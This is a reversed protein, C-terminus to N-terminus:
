DPRDLRWVPGDAGPHVYLSPLEDLLETLNVLSIAHQRPIPVEVGRRVYGGSSRVLAPVTVVFAGREAKPWGADRQKKYDGSGLTRAVRGDADGVFEDRREDLWARTREPSGGAAPVAVVAIVPERPTDVVAAVDNRAFTEPSLRGADWVPDQGRKASPKSREAYVSWGAERPGVDDASRVPPLGSFERAEKRGRPLGTPPKRVVMEILDSADSPKEFLAVDKRDRDDSDPHHRRVVGRLDACLEDLGDAITATIEALGLESVRAEDPEVIMAVPPETGLDVTIM